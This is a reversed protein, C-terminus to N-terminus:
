IDATDVSVTAAKSASQCMIYVHWVTCDISMTSSSHLGHLKM